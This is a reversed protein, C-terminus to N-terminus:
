RKVTPFLEASKLGIVIPPPKAQAMQIRMGERFELSEKLQTQLSELQAQYHDRADEYRPDHSCETDLIYILHNCIYIRIRLEKPSRYTKTLRGSDM